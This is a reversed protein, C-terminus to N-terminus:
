WRASSGFIVEFEEVALVAPDFRDGLRDGVRDMHHEPTGGAM